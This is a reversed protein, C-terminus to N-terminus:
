YSMELLEDRNVPSLVEVNQCCHLTIAQVLQKKRSGDGVLVFNLRSEFKNALKPIVKDLGQGEGFNGAYLVTKVGSKHKVRRDLKMKIFDNHYGYYRKDQGIIPEYINQICSLVVIPKYKNFGM